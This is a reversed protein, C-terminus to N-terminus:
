SKKRRSFYDHGYRAVLNKRNQLYSYYLSGLLILAAILVIFVHVKSISIQVVLLGSILIGSWVFTSTKLTYKGGSFRKVIFSFGIKFRILIFAITLYAASVILHMASFHLINNLILDISTLHLKIVITSLLGDIVGSILSGTGCVFLSYLIPYRRLMTLLVIMIIVQAPFFLSSGIIFKLYFNVTGSVLSLIAIQRHNEKIPIKFIAYCLTTMSTFMFLSLLLKILLAM